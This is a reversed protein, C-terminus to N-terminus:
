TSRSSTPSVPLTSIFFSAEELSKVWNGIAESRYSILNLMVALDETLDRTFVPEHHAIRNRLTRIREISERIESRLLRPGHTPSHPMAPALYPLWLRNDHRQTFLQQWFVLKLEAIVKGTTTYSSRTRILDQSQRHPLSQLFGPSWPWKEGYVTTLVEDAVNRISIEAFHAPLILAASVKANWAYLGTVDSFGLQEYALQYTELRPASLVKTLEDISLNTAEPM